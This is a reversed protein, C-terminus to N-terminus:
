RLNKDGKFIPRLMLIAEVLQNRDTTQIFCYKAEFIRNRDHISLKDNSAIVILIDQHGEFLTLIQNLNNSYDDIPIFLIKKFYKERFNVEENHDRLNLEIFRRKNVISYDGILVSNSLSQFIFDKYIDFKLQPILFHVDDTTLKTYIDNLDFVIFGILVSTSLTIIDLNTLDSLNQNSLKSIVVILLITYYRIVRSQIFHRKEHLITNLLTKSGIASNTLKNVFNIGGLSERLEIMKNFYDDDSKEKKPKEWYKKPKNILKISSLFYMVIYVLALLIQGLIKRILRIVSNFLIFTLKIVLDALFEWVVFWSLAYVVLYFAIDLLSVSKICEQNIYFSGSDAICFGLQLNFVTSLFWFILLSQLLWLFVKEAKAPHDLAIKFFQNM